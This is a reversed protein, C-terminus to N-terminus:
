ETQHSLERKLLLLLLLVMSLFFIIMSFGVTENFMDNVRGILWNATMNIVSSATMVVGLISNLGKKFSKILVVMVTPYIISFFFGGISIVITLNSGGFLGITICCLASFVFLFISRMYGVREAIFGGVLRGVTFIMFFLSLYSASELESMGKAYQLYTAFWNALGVESAVYFGFILSFLIVRRNKLIELLSVKEEKEGEEIKPFKCLLFYVLVGGVPILSYRYISQWTFGADLLGGAFRPGITAGVGYFFHMLNMMIGQNKIFIIPALTSAGITLLGIGYGLLLMSFVFLYYIGATSIGLIAILIFGFGTLIVKKQGIKDTMMGGTFTALIYGFTTVLMMTAISTYSVMFAEKISPILVGRINDICGQALMLGFTLVILMRRMKNQMEM